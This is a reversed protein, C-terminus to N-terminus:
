ASLFPASYLEAGVLVFVVARFLLQRMGIGDRFDRPCRM